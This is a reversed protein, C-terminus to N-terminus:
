IYTYVYTDLEFPSNPCDMSQGSLAHMWAQAPLGHIAQNIRPNILLSPIPIPDIWPNDLIFCPDM